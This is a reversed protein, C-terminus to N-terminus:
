PQVEKELTRALLELRGWITSVDVQESRLERAAKRFSRLRERGGSVDQDIRASLAELRDTM